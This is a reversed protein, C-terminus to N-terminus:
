LRPLGLHIQGPRLGSHHDLCTATGFVFAPDAQSRRFTGAAGTDAARHADAPAQAARAALLWVADTIAAYRDVVRAVCWSTDSASSVLRGGSLCSRDSVPPRSGRAHEDCAYTPAM